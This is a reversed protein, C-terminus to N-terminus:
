LKVKAKAQREAGFHITYDKPAADSNLFAEAQSKATVTKAKEGEGEVFQAFTRSFQLSEVAATNMAGSAVIAEKIATPIPFNVICDKPTPPSKKNDSM